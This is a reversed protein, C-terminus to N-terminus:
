TYSVHLQSGSCSQLHHDNSPRNSNDREQSQENAEIFYFHHELVLSVINHLTAIYSAITNGCM